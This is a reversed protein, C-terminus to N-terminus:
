RVEVTLQNKLHDYEILHYNNPLISQIAKVFEQPFHGHYRWFLQTERTSINNKPHVQLCSVGQSAAPLPQLLDRIHEIVVPSTRTPQAKM